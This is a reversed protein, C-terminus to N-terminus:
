SVYIVSGDWEIKGYNQPIPEVVVNQELTKGATYLVQTDESPTVTYEGSYDGSRVGEFEVDFSNEEFVVILDESM